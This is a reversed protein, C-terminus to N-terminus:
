IIDSGPVLVNCYLSEVPCHTDDVGEEDKVSYDIVCM